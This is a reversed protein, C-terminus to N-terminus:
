SLWGTPSFHCRMRTNKTMRDAHMHSVFRVNIRNQTHIRKNKQNPVHVYQLINVATLNTLVEKLECLEWKTATAITLVSHEVRVAVESCVM